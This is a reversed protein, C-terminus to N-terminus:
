RCLMVKQRSYEKAVEDWFQIVYVGSPLARSGQAGFNWRFSQKGHLRTRQLLQGRINYISLDGQGSQKQSFEIECYSKAPNPYVRMGATASVDMTADSVPVPLFGTVFYCGASNLVYFSPTNVLPFLDLEIVPHDLDPHELYILEDEANLIAVHSGQGTEEAWGIPLVGFDPGIASIGGSYFVPDWSIGYDPSSWLGDSDSLVSMYAYLRGDSDFRFDRLWTMDSAQWSNGYNASHYVSDGVDCVMYQNYSAISSCNQAPLATIRTWVVGDPSQYLGDREGIYFTTNDQCYSIFNPRFFWENLEWEHSLLDFNYVGDSYSGNGMTAMLTNADLKCIGTIPLISPYFEGNEFLLGDQDGVRAGFCLPTDDLFACYFQDALPGFPACEFAGLGLSILLCLLSLVLKKM